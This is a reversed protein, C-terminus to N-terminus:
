KLHNKKKFSFFLFFFRNQYTHFTESDDQFKSHQWYFRLPPKISHGTKIANNPVFGCALFRGKQPRAGPIERRMSPLCFCSTEFFFLKKLKQPSKHKSYHKPLKKSPHHHQHHHPAFNKQVIKSIGTNQSFCCYSFHVSNRSTTFATEKGYIKILTLTQKARTSQTREYADTCPSCIVVPFWRGHEEFLLIFLM